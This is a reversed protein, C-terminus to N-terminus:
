GITSYDALPFEIRIEVGPADDRNRASARAGHFEAILHVIYLGLGLHPEEGVQKDRLSVMSEFVRDQMGPPLPPGENFVALRAHAGERRLEFRITSAPPSFEAANAALKDLMQAVLDPAGRVPFPGGDADFVFRRDPHALRYGEVCGQVVEKLDFHEREVSALSQELRTAESMRAFITALRALGQEARQLYIRADDPLEFQRLNDLSSRVVAVPTRLEHSLRGALTELYGTYQQLRRLIDAFSRSLDGLEDGADSGGVSGLVRGNPDISKEAQDRLRRIRLSLRTAFWLLAAIGSVFVIALAAFLKEFTRNRLALVDNTTEEVLVAGVVKDEQWVPHAASLVVARSDPTLRRRTGTDGALAKDIELGELRYTGPAIDQFDENPESMVLRLIPRVLLDAAAERIRVPMGQDADAPAAPARLSGAQAIVRHNVDLVWIRARARGLQGVLESVEPSPVLVAGLRDKASTDSTGISGAAQRTEPDDVNVLSFGLRPGVLSRPLRLEVVYGTPVLRFVAYIRTDPVQEGDSLLYVPTRGTGRADLTFRLFEDDPSVVAVELRDSSLLGDRDPNRLVVIPDSVEFLAYIANEYRGIRYRASYARTDPAGAGAGVARPTVPQRAWDDALGDVTIPMPLNDIKLDSGQALAFPYVEGSRFLSPRDNLATGVARATSIVGQEQVKLLLDELARVYFFGLLPILLLISAALLLQLRLGARLGRARGEAGPM